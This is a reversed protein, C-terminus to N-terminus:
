QSFAKDWRKRPNGFKVKEPNFKNPDYKGGVWHLLEGHEKHTGQTPDNIAKIFNEYLRNKIKSLSKM